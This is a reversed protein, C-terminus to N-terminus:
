LGAAGRVFDFALPAVLFGFTSGVGAAFPAIVEGLGLIEAIRYAHVPGAGGFHRRPDLRDDPEPVIRPEIRVFGM